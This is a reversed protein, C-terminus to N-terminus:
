HMNHAKKSMYVDKSHYVTGAMVTYLDTQHAIALKLVDEGGMTKSKLTMKFM